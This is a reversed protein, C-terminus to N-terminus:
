LINPTVVGAWSNLNPLANRNKQDAGTGDYPLLTEELEPISEVEGNVYGLIRDRTSRLRFLLAGFRIEPVDFGHPKNEKFWLKRFSVAFREIGDMAKMYDEVLARLAGKDGAQYAQRTRVGLDHKYALARCLAAQSEFLYGYQSRKGAEELATAMEKYEAKHSLQVCPDVMGMLPDNYLLYTHAAPTYDERAVPGMDVPIDLLMMDDFREGLLEEFEKKIQDMDNVGDYFRRVAYLSPLLAYFSCLKGYNGWVTMMINEVGREKCSEMAPKMSKMTWANNPCFGIWAWAGGAFWKEGGFKAHSDLMADYRAKDDTYYDWFVQDVGEPCAALVEDTIIDPDYSYYAGNNVLRYFMDSWMMPKFGYKNALAIVRELHRHLIDFRNEYGHKDQYKGRGLMHAEDMGIHIRDTTFCERLSRFMHEILEYTREEDVLLISATDNVPRYTKWLFMQNLHALTQMCPI